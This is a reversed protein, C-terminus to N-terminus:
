EADDQLVGEITALLERPALPKALFAACGAARAGSERWRGAPVIVMPVRQTRADRKLRRTAELGDIEPMAIDMVIVHPAFTAALALAEAGDRLAEVDWGSWTLYQAYLERNDDHDDVILARLSRKKDSA